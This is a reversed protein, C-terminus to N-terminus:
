RSTGRGSAEESLKARALVSEPVVKGRIFRDGQDVAKILRHVGDIVAFREGYYAVLIPSLLDAMWVRNPDPDAFDRLVWELDAVFFLVNPRGDMGAMVTNLDYEADDYTFTGGPDERYFDRLAGLLKRMKSPM